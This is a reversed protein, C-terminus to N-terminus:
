SHPSTMYATAVNASFLVHLSVTVSYMYVNIYVFLSLKRVFVHMVPISLCELLDSGSYM